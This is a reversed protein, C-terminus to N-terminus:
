RRVEDLLNLRVARLRSPNRRDAEIEFSIRTGPSLEDFVIGSITCESHHFFTDPQRDDRRIFGYGKNINVTKITGVITTM